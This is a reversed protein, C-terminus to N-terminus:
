RQIVPPLLHLSAAYHDEGHSIVLASTIGPESWVRRSVGRGPRAPHKKNKLHAGPFVGRVAQTKDTRTFHMCPFLFRGTYDPGRSRLEHRRVGKEVCM